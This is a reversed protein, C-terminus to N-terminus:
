EEDGSARRLWRRDKDIETLTHPLLRGPGLARGRLRALLAGAVILVLGAGGLALWPELGLRALLLLLGAVLLGVGFVFLALGVAVAVAAGRLRGVEGRIEDEALLLRQELFFLLREVLRALLRPLDSEDPRAEADRPM